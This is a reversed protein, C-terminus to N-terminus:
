RRSVCKELIKRVKKDCFHWIPRRRGPQLLYPLPGPGRRQNSLIPTKAAVEWKEREFEQLQNQQRLKKVLQDWNFPM